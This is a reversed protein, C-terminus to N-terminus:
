EDDDDQPGGLHHHLLALAACAAQLRIASRDGSLQWAASREAAGGSVAGYVDGVRGGEAATPGAWGTVALGHDSGARVRIGAALARTTDDSVTGHRRLVEPELGALAVKAAETYVVGGGWIVESAGPVATLAAAIMGGTCSEATALTEGRGRLRGVVDAALRHLEDGAAPSM